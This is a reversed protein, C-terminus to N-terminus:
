VVREKNSEVPSTNRYIEAAEELLVYNRLTDDLTQKMSSCHSLRLERSLNDINDSMVLCANCHRQAWCDKCEEETTQAVNLLRRIHDTKFGEELNGINMISSLESVRECPFFNGDIDIFLRTTGPICPGGPYGEIGFPRARKLKDFKTKYTSYDRKAIASIYEEKMYGMKWLFTKFLEYEKTHYYDKSPLHRTNSYAENLTSFIVSNNKITDNYTFFDDLNKLNNQPNVVCNFRISQYYEPYKEKIRMLNNWITDFSGSGDSKYRRQKNHIQSPGDLSILLPVNYMAFFEIKEDNLLTGNTTISYTIEKSETISNCYEICKKVLQFELLPEGGYFGINVSDKASSHAILFDIGTRATEWSMKKNSHKRQLPNKQESYICYACRFNCNQTVQLTIKQVCNNLRYELFRDQGHIIKEPRNNLLFGNKRLVKIKKITMEETQADIHDNQERELYDYVDEDIPCVQNTNVDYLYCSNPSKFLHIFPKLNKM